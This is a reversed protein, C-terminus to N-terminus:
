IAQLLGSLYDGFTEKSVESFGATMRSLGPFCGKFPQAYIYYFFMWINM